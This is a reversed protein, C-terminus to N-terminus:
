FSSHLREREKRDMEKVERRRWDNRMSDGGIRDDHTIVNFASAAHLSIRELIM